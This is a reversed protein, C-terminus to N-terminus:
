QNLRTSKYELSNETLGYLTITAHLTQLYRFPLLTFINESTLLIEASIERYIEYLVVKKEFSRRPDNRM